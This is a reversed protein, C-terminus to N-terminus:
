RFSNFPFLVVARSILLFWRRKSPTTRKVNPPLEDRDQAWMRRRQNDWYIWSEDGTVLHKQRKPSCGQMMELMHQSLEVRDAKQVDSLRHPIWRPAFFRPGLDDLVRLIKTRPSYVAKSIERSSSHPQRKVFRLVTDCFDNQHPMGPREDDEVTEWRARFRAAWKEIAQLRLADQHYGQELKTVIQTKTKERLCHYRIVFRQQFLLTM